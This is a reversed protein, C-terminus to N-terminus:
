AGVSRLTSLLEEYQKIRKRTKNRERKPLYAGRLEITLLWITECLEDQGCIQGDFEIRPEWFNSLIRYTITM